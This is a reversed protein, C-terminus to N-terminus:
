AATLVTDKAILTGGCFHDSGDSTLSVLYPYRGEQAEVGGVIRTSKSLMSDAVSSVEDGDDFINGSAMASGVVLLLELTLSARAFRKM